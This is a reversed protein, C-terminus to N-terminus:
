NHFCVSLLFLGSLVKDFIMQTRHNPFMLKDGDGTIADKSIKLADISDLYVALKMSDGKDRKKLKAYDHVSLNERQNLVILMELQMEYNNM